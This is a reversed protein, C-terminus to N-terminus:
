KKSKNGAEYYKISEPSYKDILKFLGLQPPKHATRECAMFGCILLLMFGGVSLNVERPFNPIHSRVEYLYLIAWSFCAAICLWMVFQFKDPFKPTIMILLSALQLLVYTYAWKFHYKTIFEYGMVIGGDVPNVEICLLALSITFLCAIGAVIYPTKVNRLSYYGAKTIAATLKQHSSPDLRM